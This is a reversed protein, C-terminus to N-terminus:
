RQAAQYSAPQASHSSPLWPEAGAPTAPHLLVSKVLQMDGSLADVKTELASLRAAVGFLTGLLVVIV